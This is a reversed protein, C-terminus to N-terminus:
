NQCTSFNDTIKVSLKEVIENFTLGQDQFSHLKTHCDQCLIMLNFTSNKHYTGVFGNTDAYQQAQIHHTHLQIKSHCLQCQDVYIKSNYRSTKTSMFETSINSVSKRIQEARRIFKSDLGLWKAVELGYSKSGPGEQLKRIYVLNGTQADNYTELHAIRIKKGKNENVSTLKKVDPM